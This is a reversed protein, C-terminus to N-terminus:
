RRLSVTKSVLRTDEPSPSVGGIWVKLAGPRVVSEGSADIVSLEDAGLSFTVVRSEGPALLIREFGRLSYLPVIGGAPATHSLYLQVVEDGAMSGTNTVTVSVNNDKRGSLAQPVELASYEFTTYSL